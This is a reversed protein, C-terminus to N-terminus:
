FINFVQKRLSHGVLFPLPHAKGADICLMAYYTNAKAAITAKPVLLCLCCSVCICLRHSHLNDPLLFPPKLQQIRRSVLKTETRTLPKPATDSRQPLWEAPCPNAPPNSYDTRGLEYFVRRETM